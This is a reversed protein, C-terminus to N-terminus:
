LDLHLLLLYVMQLTLYALPNNLLLMPLSSINTYLIEEIGQNKTGKIALIRSLYKIRDCGGNVAPSWM